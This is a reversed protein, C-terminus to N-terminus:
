NPPLESQNKTKNVSQSASLVRYETRMFAVLDSPASQKKGKSEECFIFVQGSDVGKGAIAYGLEFLVNPNHGTIDFILIDAQEIKKLIGGLAGMGHRARLRCYDVDLPHLTAPRKKALKHITGIVSKVEDRLFSWHDTLGGKEKDGKEHSWGYGIAIRIQKPKKHKLPM